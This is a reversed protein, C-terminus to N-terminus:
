LARWAEPRLRSGEEKQLAEDLAALMRAKDEPLRGGLPLYNSAHNSRFLAGSVQTADILERLERLMAWSGPVKFEGRRVREALGTGEVVMLSLVGIYEPDIASLARGTARAHEVTREEGALGLVTTVSLQMGAESARSCAEIQEAVTVGKNCSRLTADDGSELGLYLLTLGLDKLPRLDEVDKKLLAQASAYSSVRQLSPLEEHLLELLERLRRRPLIVADGDGLFVKTVTSKLEDPLRRVDEVVEQFPRVRFPKDLYTGCFDCSNHSCGYTVQIILSDAESPPRIVTGHYRM